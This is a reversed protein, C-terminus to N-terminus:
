HSYPPPRPPLSRYSVQCNVNLPPPRRTTPPTNDSVDEEKCCRYLCWICTCLLSVVIFIPLFIAVYTGVKPDCAFDLTIRDKWDVIHSNPEITLFATQGSVSVSCTGPSNTTTACKEVVADDRIEYLIRSFNFDVRLQSSLVNKNDFIMFYNDEYSILYSRTIAGNSCLGPIPFSDERPVTLGGKWQRFRNYGKILFFTSSVSDTISICASVTFSSGPYMYFYYYKYSNSKIFPTDSFSFTEKGTLMPLANLTYLTVTYGSDSTVDVTLKLNKCLSKSVPVTRTDNPSYDPGDEDFYKGVTYRVPLTILLAILAGVAIVGIVWRAGRPM